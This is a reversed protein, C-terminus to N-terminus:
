GILVKRVTGRLVWPVHRLAREIAEEVAEGQRARAEALANTLDALEREDLADLFPPTSAGLEAGLSSPTAKEM